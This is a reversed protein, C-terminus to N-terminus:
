LSVPETTGKWFLALLFVFCWPPATYSSIAQLYNWLQGSQSAELIPLWVISVVLLAVVCLQVCSVCSCVLCCVCSCVICCLVCLQVCALVCLQGGPLEGSLIFSYVMCCLQVRPMM